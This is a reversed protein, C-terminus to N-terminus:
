LEDGLSLRRHAQKAREDAASAGYRQLMQPSEWGAIRQLDGEAGGAALWRHAFTHRFQHAHIRPLGALKCRRLLMQAVGSDLLPGKRGLWLEPRAALPHRSRVRMYRDLAATTTDGFPVTRFRRGKGHVIAVMLDLDLDSVKMGRMEGLRMGTDLFLRIMAEDRRETFGKGNCAAILRRLEDTSLVPVPQEIVKPAKVRDMPNTDIEGEDTLWAFLQKLSAYRQRATASARTELVHGLYGRIDDTTIGDVALPRGNDTLWAVLQDSALEYSQITRPSRNAARLARRWSPILDPLPLSDTM